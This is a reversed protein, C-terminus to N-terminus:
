DNANLVPSSTSGDCNAYADGAAYKNLFCQFDNASLLPAASSGDCNAYCGGVVITAGGGDIFDVLFAAPPVHVSVDPDAGWRTLTGDPVFDGGTDLLGAGTSFAGGSGGGERRWVCTMDLLYLSFVDGAHTGSLHVDVTFVPAAPTAPIPSLTGNSELYQLEPGDFGKEVLNTVYHISDPVIPTGVHGTLSTLTGSNASSPTHGLAIGRDLGGLYGIGRISHGGAPDYIYVAVGPVVTTGVPVRVTTQIGPAAADLDLVVRVPQADAVSALAVAMGGWWRLHFMGIEQIGRQMRPRVAWLRTLSVWSRGVNRVSM